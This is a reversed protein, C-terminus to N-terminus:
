LTDSSDPTAYFSKAAVGFSVLDITLFAPLAIGWLKLFSEINSSNPM